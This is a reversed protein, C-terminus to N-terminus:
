QHPALALAGEDRRVGLLMHAVAEQLEHGVVAVHVAFARRLTRSHLRVRAL